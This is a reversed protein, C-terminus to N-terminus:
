EFEGVPLITIEYLPPDSLLCKSVLELVESYDSVEIQTTIGLEDTIKLIM